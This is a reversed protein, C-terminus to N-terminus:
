ESLNSILTNSFYECSFQLAKDSNLFKEINALYSLYKQDSMNKIFEYLNEYSKFNRKDIFCNHPIHEFINKPGLYIPVCGSFFCDFIKETIYGPINLANEYCIAFKYKILVTKKSEIKGKYTLLNKKILGSLRLKNLFFNIYKNNSVYQDWGFGHLDFENPHNNEFWKIARFRETYLELPHNVKKNSAILTCLKNKISLDKNITAPFQYSYNIKFYKKNDVLDDNWTFIKEFYKHNDKDWNDKKIVENELIVLYKSKNSIFAKQVLKNDLRPFDFFIFEKFDDFNGMDLTQFNIEQKHGSRYLHNFPLLLDDGIGSNKQHLIYNNHNLNEYFNWIGIKKM